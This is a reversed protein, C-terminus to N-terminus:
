QAPLGFAVAYVVNEDVGDMMVLANLADDVFGGLPLAGWGLATGVLLANQVAHGAELLVLRYGREGYKDTTRSLMAGVLLVFAADAVAPEDLLAAQLDAVRLGDEGRVLELAHAEPAYHWVGPALGEVRLAAVYLELPYRAGASPAARAPAGSAANAGTVGYSLHLVRALDALAVPGAGFSRVTRRGAIAAALSKALPPAARPDPLPHREGYRLDPMRPPDEAAAPEGVRMYPQVKTNEHYLEALSEEKPFPLRVYPAAM